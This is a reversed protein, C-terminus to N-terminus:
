CFPSKLKIVKNNDNLTFICSPPYHIETIDLAIMEFEIVETIPFYYKTCCFGETLIRNYLLFYNNNHIIIYKIVFLFISELQEQAVVDNLKYFTNKKKLKKLFIFM